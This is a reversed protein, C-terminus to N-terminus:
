RKRQALKRIRKLALKRVEPDKDKKSVQQLRLLDREKRVARKRVDPDSRALKPLFLEKIEM